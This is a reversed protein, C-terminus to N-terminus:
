IKHCLHASPVDMGVENHWVSIVFDSACTSWPMVLCMGHRMCSVPQCCSVKATRLLPEVEDEECGFKRGMQDAVNPDDYRLRDGTDHDCVVCILCFMRSNVFVYSM